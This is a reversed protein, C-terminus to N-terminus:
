LDESAIESSIDSFVTPQGPEVIPRLDKVHRPMGDVTINQAATIGTVRGVNYKIACRGHPANVWVRDGLKFVAQQQNHTSTLHDM